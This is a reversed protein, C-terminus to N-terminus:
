RHKVVGFAAAGILGVGGVITLILGSGVTAVGSVDGADAIGILTVVGGIVLDTVAIALQWGSPRQSLGRWVGGAAALLGLVLTIGGDGSTGAVTFPGFSAWPMMAAIVIVGGAAAMLWGATRATSSMARGGPGFTQAPLPRSHPTWQYGDWWREFPGEPAPYWGPPAQPRPTEDAM